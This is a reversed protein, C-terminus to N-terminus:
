IAPVEEFRTKVLSDIKRMKSELEEITIDGTTLYQLGLSIYDVLCDDIRRGIEEAARREYAHDLYYRLGIEERMESSEVVDLQRDPERLLRGLTVTRGMWSM